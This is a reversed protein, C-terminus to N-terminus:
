KIALHIKLSVQFSFGGVSFPCCCERILGFNIQSYNGVLNEAIQFLLVVPHTLNILLEILYTKERNRPFNVFFFNTKGRAKHIKKPPSIPNKCRSILIFHRLQPKMQSTIKDRTDNM